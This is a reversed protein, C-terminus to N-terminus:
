TINNLLLFANHHTIETPRLALPDDAIAADIHRFVSNLRSSVNMLLDVYLNVYMYMHIYTYMRTRIYM